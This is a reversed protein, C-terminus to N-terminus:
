VRSATEKHRESASDYQWSSSSKTSPDWGYVLHQKVIRAWGPRYPL